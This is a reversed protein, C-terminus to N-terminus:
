CAFDASRVWIHTQLPHAARGDVRSIQRVFGIHIQLPHAARDDVRSIQRVFGIHIQLPHAARDDVRSIQRVFPWPAPAAGLGIFISDACERAQKHNVKNESYGLAFRDPLHQRDMLKLFRGFSGLTFKHRNQPNVAIM